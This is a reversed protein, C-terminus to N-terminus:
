RSPEREMGEIFDFTKTNKPLPRFHFTVDLRGNKETQRFKDFEIGEASQVPYHKGDALLYTDKSFRFLGMNPYDSRKKITARVVTEDEKLEVKTIDMAINFFGDFYVNGYETTPNDWIQIKQARGKSLGLAMFILVLLLPQTRM